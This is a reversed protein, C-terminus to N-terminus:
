RARPVSYPGSISIPSLLHLNAAHLNRSISENKSSSHIVEMHLRLSEANGDSASKRLFAEHMKGTFLWWRAIASGCYHRTMRRRVRKAEEIFYGPALSIFEAKAM